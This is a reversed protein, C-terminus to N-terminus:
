YQAYMKCLEYYLLRARLRGSATLELRWTGYQLTEFYPSLDLIEDDEGTTVVGFDHVLNGNPDYLAASLTRGTIAEEYIGFDIPHTHDPLDVDHSHSGGGSASTVTGIAVDHTHDTTAEATQGSVTHTHSAGGSGSTVTGIVVDHTHTYTIEEASLVRNYIRVEDVIGDFPESVADDYIGVKATRTSTAPDLHTGPSYTKDTGNVYIKASTGSRTVVVSHWTGIALSGVQSKTTQNTGSQYTIYYLQSGVQVLRFGDTNHLGRCFINHNDTVTDPKVWAEITIDGLINLSAGSGCDVYDNVGDFSLAKGYKGDIWAAGNIAGNNGKGSADYATGGSGEDVPLYLQLYEDVPAQVATMGSVHHSHSAGGSASTITGIVVDHQHDAATEYTYIDRGYQIALDARVESLNVDRARFDQASYGGPTSSVFLFMKHRHSGGAASTKTGIVVDHTHSPTTAVSTSGTVSHIHAGGAASTKTGIAVDHTHDPSTASSTAGTVTHSHAGGAVSTKTGIAVDHTHAILTTESTVVQAGGALAAKSHARFKEAWVHIKLVDVKFTEEPIWVYSTYGLSDDLNEADQWTNKVSTYVARVYDPMDPDPPAGGETVHNPLETV